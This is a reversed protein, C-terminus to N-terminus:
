PRRSEYNDYESMKPQSWDERFAEDIAPYAESPTFGPLLAKVREYMDARIVVCELQTQGETVPVAEGQELAKQQEAALHVTLKM